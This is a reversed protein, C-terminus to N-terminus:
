STRRYWPVELAAVLIMHPSPVGRYRTAARRPSVRPPGLGRAPAYPRCFNVTVRGYRPRRRSAVPCPLVPPCCPLLPRVVIFPVTPSSPSNPSMLSSVERSVVVGATRTPGPSSAATTAAGSRLTTALM